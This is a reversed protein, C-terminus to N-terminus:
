TTYREEEEILEDLLMQFNREEYMRRSEELREEESMKDFDSCIRHRNVADFKRLSYKENYSAM